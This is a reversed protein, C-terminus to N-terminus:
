YAANCTKSTQGDTQGDTVCQNKLQFRFPKFFGFNTDISELTPTVPTGIKLKFSSRDFDGSMLFMGFHRM